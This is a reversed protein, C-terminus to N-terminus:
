DTKLHGVVLTIGDGVQVSRFSTPDFDSPERQRFHITDKKVDAYDAVKDHDRLWTRAERVSWQNDKHFIVTQLTM